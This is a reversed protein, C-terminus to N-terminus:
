QQKIWGPLAGSKRAETELEHLQTRNRALNEKGTEQEYITKQIERQIQLQKFGDSEAYFRTRLGALKLTLVNAENELDKVKQRAESLTKRWFNEPRGLLDTPEDPAARGAAPGTSGPKKDAATSAAPPPSATTITGGKYKPVDINTIPTAANKIKERREREKRALDGLSQPSAISVSLLLVTSTVATVRM